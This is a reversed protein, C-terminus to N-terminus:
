LQASVLLAQLLQGCAGLLATFQKSAALLQAFQELLTACGIEEIASHNSGALGGGVAYEANQAASFGGIEIVATATGSSDRLLPWKTLGLVSRRVYWCLALISIRLFQTQLNASRTLRM